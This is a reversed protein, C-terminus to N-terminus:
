RDRVPSRPSRVRSEARSQRDTRKTVPTVPVEPVKESHTRVAGSIIPNFNDKSLDYETIKVVNGDSRTQQLETVRPLLLVSEFRDRWERKM